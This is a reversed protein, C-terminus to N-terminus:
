TKLCLQKRLLQTRQELCRRPLRFGTFPGLGIVLVCRRAVPIPLRVDAPKEEPHASSM